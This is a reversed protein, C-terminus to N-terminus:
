TVKSFKKPSFYNEIQFSGFTGIFSSWAELELRYHQLTEDLDLQSLPQTTYKMIKSEETISLILLNLIVLFYFLSM